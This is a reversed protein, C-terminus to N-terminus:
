RNRSRFVLGLILGSILALLMASQRKQAIEQKAEAASLRRVGLRYSAALLRAAVRDSAFYAFPSTRMNPQPRSPQPFKDALPVEALTYADGDHEVRAVVMGTANIIKTQHDFGAEIHVESAKTLYKWLDPRQMVYAGVSFRPRPMKSRFTGSGVSHVVPVGMWAAHEDMDRGPFHEEDTYIQQSLFGLDHMNVRLGDPFVLDASSMKPPCSAILIADVKGAYHEWLEPHAADWCIMMGLKGLATEAINPAHGERFYAHEWMFPYRKDYRWMYGDPAILFAANYVEEGDRLLLTGLLHIQRQKAQARMWTITKGDIAEALAYNRPDYEYGINFLEPLVLVQAGSAAAEAVLEAARGLREIVPAPTADMQVAAIKLTRTM